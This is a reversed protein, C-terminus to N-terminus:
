KPALLGSIARGLVQDLRGAADSQMTETMHSYIDLTVNISRARYVHRM